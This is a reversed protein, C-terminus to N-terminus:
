QSQVAPIHNQRKLSSKRFLRKQGDQMRHYAIQRNFKDQHKQKLSASIREFFYRIDKKEYRANTRKDRNEYGVSHKGAQIPYLKQRSPQTKEKKQYVMMFSSHENQFIFPVVDQKGNSKGCQEKIYIIKSGQAHIVMNGVKSEIQRHEKKEYANM